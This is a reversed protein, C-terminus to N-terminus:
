ALRWHRWIPGGRKTRGANQKVKSVGLSLITEKEHLFKGDNRTEKVLIFIFVREFHNIIVFIM